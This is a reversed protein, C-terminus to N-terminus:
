RQNLCFILGNSVLFENFSLYGNNDKNFANFIYDSIKELNEKPESRLKSYLNFFEKKDLKGDPNNTKFEDFIKRIEDNSMKSTEELFAFDIDDPKDNKFEQKDNLCGM